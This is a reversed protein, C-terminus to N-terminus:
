LNKLLEALDKPVEQDPNLKIYYAAAESLIRNRTKIATVAEIAIRHCENVEQITEVLQGGAVAAILRQLEQDVYDIPESM